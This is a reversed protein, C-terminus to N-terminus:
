KPCHCINTFIGAGHTAYPSHTAIFSFVYFHPSSWSMNWPSSLPQLVPPEPPRGWRNAASRMSTLFLIPGTSIRKKSEDDVERINQLFGLFTSTSIWKKSEDLPFRWWGVKVQLNWLQTMPPGEMGVLRWRSAKELPNTKNPFDEGSVQTKVM